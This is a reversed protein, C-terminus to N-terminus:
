EPFSTAKCSGVKCYLVRLTWEVLAFHGSRLALCLAETEQLTLKLPYADCCILGNETIASRYNRLHRRSPYGSVQSPTPPVTRNERYSTAIGLLIDMTILIGCLWISPGQHVQHLTRFKWLLRGRGLAARRRPDQCTQFIPHFSNTPFWWNWEMVVWSPAQTELLSVELGSIEETVVERLFLSTLFINEPM